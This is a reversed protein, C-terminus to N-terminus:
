ASPAPAPAPVEGDEPEVERNLKFNNRKAIADFGFVDAITDTAGQEDKLLLTQIAGIRILTNFTEETLPQQDNIRVVLLALRDEVPVTLVRQEESWEKVLKDAPQSRAHDVIAAVAAKNSGIVPLTSPTLELPMNNQAMMQLRFQNDLYVQSPVQVITDHDMAVALLGEAVAQIKLDPAKKLLAQFHDLRRVDRVVQERVEDVSTPTRSADTDTIRFVYLNGDFDKLPPGAIGKQMQFSASGDFEKAALVLQARAIGRDGFKTTNAEGVGPLKSM